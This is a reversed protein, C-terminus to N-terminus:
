WLSFSDWLVEAEVLKDSAKDSRGIVPPVVGDSSISSSEVESNALVEADILVEVLTESDNLVEADILAEVLTESDDLAEADILAEVLTESDDLVESDILVEVLSDTDNLALSDAEVLTLSDNFTVLSVSESRPSIVSAILGSEVAEVLEEVSCVPALPDVEVLSLKAVDSDNTSRLTVFVFSELAGISRVFFM